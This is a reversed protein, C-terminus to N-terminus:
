IRQSARLTINFMKSLLHGLGGALVGWIVAVVTLGGWDAPLLYIPAAFLAGPLAFVAVWGFHNPTYGGTDKLHAGGGLAFALAIGGFFRFQLTTSVDGGLILELGIGSTWTVVGGAILMIILLIM